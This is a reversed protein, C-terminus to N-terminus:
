KLSEKQRAFMEEAPWRGNAHLFLPYTDFMTNVPYGHVFQLEDYGGFLCFCLQTTDDIECLGKGEVLLLNLFRQDLFNPDYFRHKEAAECWLEFDVPTGAVWGGNAFRWPSNLRAPISVAVQPDPYCNKEAAHILFRGDLKALLSKKTGWFTMDFGDTFIIFEYERYLRAYKRFVEVRYGLNGGGNQNPRDSADHMFVDIGAAQLQGLYLPLTGHMGTAGFIVIVDKM